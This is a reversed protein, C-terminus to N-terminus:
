HKELRTLLETIDDLRWTKCWRAYIMRRLDERGGRLGFGHAGGVRYYASVIDVHIFDPSIQCLQLWFDWDEYVDLNEDFRCGTDLVSADILAAHIPIYNNSYLKLRDFPESFVRGDSDSAPDTAITKVGSYAVLSNSSELATLLNRVHGADFWDDDDLFLFFDGTVMDMGANAAASRGRGSPWSIYKVSHFVQTYESVLDEVDEGGDNVIILEMKQHSQQALSAISHNLMERRNKTRVIVSVLRNHPESEEFFRAMWSEMAHQITLGPHYKFEFFSEAADCQEPLTFTRSINLAEVLEIYRHKTVQSVYRSMLQRKRERFASIDLLVNCPGQNGIDYSFLRPSNGQLTQVSAWVIEATARHDPHYELPSPFFVSAPRLERIIGAISEVLQSSLELQRDDQRLFRYGKVGMYECASVAEKERIATVENESGTGGGAGNTMFVIDVDHGQSVAQLISGGM